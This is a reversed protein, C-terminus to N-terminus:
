IEILQLHDMQRGGLVEIRASAGRSAKIVLGGIVRLQRSDGIARMSISRKAAMPTDPELRGIGVMGRSGSSIRFELTTHFVISRNQYKGLAEASAQCATQGAAQKMAM